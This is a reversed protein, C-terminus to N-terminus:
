FDNKQKALLLLKDVEIALAGIATAPDPPLVKHTEAGAEVHHNLYPRVKQLLKFAMVARNLSNTRSGYM